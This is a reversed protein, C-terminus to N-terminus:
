KWYQMIVMLIESSFQLGVYVWLESGDERQMVDLIESSFQLVAPAVLRIV